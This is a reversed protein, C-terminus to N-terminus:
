SKMEDQLKGQSTSIPVAACIIPEIPELIDSFSINQAVKTLQKEQGALFKTDHIVQKLFALADDLTDPNQSITIFAADKDSFGHIYAEKAPANAMDTSLGWDHISICQAWEVFEELEESNQQIIALQNHAQHFQGLQVQM